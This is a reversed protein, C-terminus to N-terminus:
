RARPRRRGRRRRVPVQAEAVDLEESAGNRRVTATGTRASRRSAPLVPSPVRAAPASSTPRPPRGDARGPAAADDHEDVVPDAGAGAELEVERTSRKSACIASSAAAPRTVVSSSASAAARARGLRRRVVRDDDGEVVARGVEGVDRHRDEHAVADRRRHVERGREELLLAGNGYPAGGIDHAASRSVSAVPRTVTPECVWVWASSSRSGSSAPRGVLEVRRDRRM